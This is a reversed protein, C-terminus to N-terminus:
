RMLLGIAPDCRIWDPWPAAQVLELPTVDTFTHEEDWYPDDTYDLKRTVTARLGPDAGAELLLRAKVEDKRGENLVAHFLPTLNGNSRANPDAGRDLLSIMAEVDDFEIALHLMTAGEIPLATFVDEPALGLSPPFVEDFRYHRSPDGLRDFQRRHLAMPPTDPLSQGNQECVELCEAKRAPDRSYMALVSGAAPKGHWTLTSGLEALLRLGAPNLAECVAEVVTSRADRAYLGNPDAGLGVLFEAVERHAYMAARSLAHQLDVPHGLSWLWQLMELQGRMASYVFAGGWNSSPGRLPILVLEPHKGIIAKVTALDGNEIAASLQPKVMSREVEKKLDSWSEFGHERALVLQAQALSIPVDTFYPKVRDLALPESSAVARVLEKAQTRLQKLDPKAPLTNLQPVETAFRPRLDAYCADVFTRTSCPEPHPPSRGERPGPHARQAPRM